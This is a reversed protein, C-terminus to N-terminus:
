CARLLPVRAHGQQLFVQGVNRTQEFGMRLKAGEGGAM